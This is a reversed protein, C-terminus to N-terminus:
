TDSSSKEIARQMETISCMMVMKLPFRFANNCQSCECSRFLPRLHARRGGKSAAGKRAERGVQEGIPAALGRRQAPPLLAVILGLLVCPATLGVRLLAAAVVRGDDRAAAAAASARDGGGGSSADVAAEELRRWDRASAPRRVVIVGAM